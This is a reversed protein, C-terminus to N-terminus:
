WHAELAIRVLDATSAAGMKEMVRQRHLKVTRLAIGLMEGIAANTMGLAVLRGIENERDTLSALRAALRDQQARVRQRQDSLKLAKDVAALLVDADLPKILFDVVGARFASAAEPAGSAGSM